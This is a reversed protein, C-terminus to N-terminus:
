VTVGLWVPKVNLGADSASAIVVVFIVPAFKVAVAEAGCVNVIVPVTLPVPPDPVVKVRLPAALWVVVAFADPAKVNLPNAFPVYAMVGLWLPNVKVGVLAEAVILVALTVPTLKVAFAAAAVKLM